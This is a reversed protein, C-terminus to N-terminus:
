GFTWGLINGGHGPVLTGEPGVRERLKAISEYCAAVDVHIGPPIYDYEVPETEVTEGNGDVVSTVDPTLNHECYALDSVIAHPGDATRCIVAQMGETHGPTHLLEFGEMLRYGGDVVTTDLDDLGALNEDHYVSAVPPLPDAAAELEARQVFFEADPFLHNNSAHDYHLHTLIVYEVDGPELGREALGDRLADPGGGDVPKGAIEGNEDPEPVGTDVLITADRGRVLFSVIPITIPKGEDVLYTFSGKTSDLTATKIPEITYM